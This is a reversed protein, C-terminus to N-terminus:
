YARSFPGHDSTMVTAADATMSILPSSPKNRPRPQDTKSMGCTM